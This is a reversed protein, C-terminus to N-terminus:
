RLCEALKQHALLLVEGTYTTPAAEAVTDLNNNDGLTGPTSYDVAEYLGPEPM